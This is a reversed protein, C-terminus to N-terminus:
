KIIPINRFKPRAVGGSFSSTFAAFQPSFLSISTAEPDINKFIFNVDVPIGRIVHFSFVDM